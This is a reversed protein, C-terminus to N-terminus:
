KEGKYWLPTIGFHKSMYRMHPYDSSACPVGLWAAEIAGFAGNDSLSSLLLFEAGALLDFYSNRDMEGKIHV